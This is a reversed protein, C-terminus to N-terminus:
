QDINVLMRLLFIINVMDSSYEPLNWIEDDINDSRSAQQFILTQSPIINRLFPHKQSIHQSLANPKSFSRNCHECQWRM